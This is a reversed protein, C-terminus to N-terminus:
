VNNLPARSYVSISWRASPQRALWKEVMQLGFWDHEYEAHVWNEGVWGLTGCKLGLRRKVAHASDFDGIVYNGDKYFINVPKVDCHVIGLSHLHELGAKVDKVVKRVDIRERTRSMHDLDCDYREFVVGTVVKHPFTQVIGLDRVSIVESAEVGYYKGVNPHPHQKLIECTSIERNTIRAITTSFLLKDPTTWQFAQLCTQRKVYKQPDSLDSAVTMSDLLPPHVNALNLLTPPLRTFTSPDATWPNQHNIESGAVYLKQNRYCIVALLPGKLPGEDIWNKERWALVEYQTDSFLDLINQLPWM